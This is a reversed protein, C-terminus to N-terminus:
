SIRIDVLLNNLGHCTLFVSVGERSSKDSYGRVPLALRLYPVTPPNTHASPDTTTKAGFTHAKSYCVKVSNGVSDQLCDRPRNM